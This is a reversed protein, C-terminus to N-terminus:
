AAPRMGPQSAKSTLHAIGPQLGDRSKDTLELQGRYSPHEPVICYRRDEANLYEGFARILQHMRQGAQLRSSTEITMFAAEDLIATAEAMAELYVHNGRAWFLHQEGSPSLELQTASEEILCTPDYNIVLATKLLSDLWLALARRELGMAGLYAYLDTKAIYRSRTEGFRVM